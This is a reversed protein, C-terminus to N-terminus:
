NYTILKSLLFFHLKPPDIKRLSLDLWPGEAALGTACVGRSLYLRAVGTPIVSKANTAICLSRVRTSSQSVPRPLQSGEVIRM